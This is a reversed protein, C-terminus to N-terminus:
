LILLDREEYISSGPQETRLTREMANALASVGDIKEHSKAKDPKVNGAADMAVALNDVMWRLVPNGGHRLVPHEPTGSLLLRKIEKTPASLSAFGQGIPSMPLGASVCNNVLQSSNWRDYAIDKVLYHEADRKLSAEIYDYDTVNGPTLTLWKDRVWVDANGATRKNLERLNDQPAFIRWLADFTGTDVPDPFLLCYATFDSVAGLDLGTFCERGELSVPDVMGANRDWEQLSIYRTVQKTRIGLYLRQFRALNAPAQAAKHAESELFKRTPSIGFGPNAARWSEESFPEAEPDLGWIVGYFTPDFLAGRALQEAYQRKEEYITGTKGDDATTIMIVLPQRRSGAGSELADVLDRTKHVHLEDIVAGHINAGHILDAAASIVQFYSGTKPHVIKESLAKVHPALKKSKEALTKVPNFCFKAQDKAAAAAYVEAGGEGDACTLYIAQGGALTTKGNKRPIDVYETRIIRVWRGAEQDYEVWGYVPALIYAVQWPDPKLPKGMWDGKTHQLSSFASLVTDVRAPDFRAGAEDRPEPTKWKPPCTPLPIGRSALYWGVEPSIKLAELEDPDYPEVEASSRTTTRRAM